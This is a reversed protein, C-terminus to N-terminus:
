WASGVFNADTEEDDSKPMMLQKSMGYRDVQSSSGLNLLSSSHQLKHEKMSPKEYVMKKM